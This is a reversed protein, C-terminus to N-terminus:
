ISKLHCKLGLDYNAKEDEWQLIRGGAKLDELIGTVHRCAIIGVIKKGKRKANIKAQFGQCSCLLDGGRFDVLYEAYRDKHGRPYKDDVRIVKYTDKGTIFYKYYKM